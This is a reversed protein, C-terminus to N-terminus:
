GCLKTIPTDRFNGALRVRGSNLMYSVTAVVEQETDSAESVADILELLTLSQPEEETGTEIEHIVLHHSIPVVTTSREVDLEEGRCRQGTQITGVSEDADPRKTEVAVKCGKAM